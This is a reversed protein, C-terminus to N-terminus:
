LIICTASKPINTKNIRDKENCESEAKYDNLLRKSNQLEIINQSNRINGNREADEQSDDVIRNSQLPPSKIRYQSDSRNYQKTEREEVSRQELSTRSDADDGDPVNNLQVDEQETDSMDDSQRNKTQQGSSTGMSAIPHVSRKYDMNINHREFEKLRERELEAEQELETMTLGKDDAGEVDTFNVPTYEASLFSSASSRRHPNNKNGLATKPLTHSNASSSRERFDKGDLITKIRDSFVGDMCQSDSDIQKPVASMPFGHQYEESNRRSRNVEEDDESAGLEMVSAANRTTQEPTDTTADKNGVSGSKRRKGLLWYTKMEGKGKIELSGRLTTIYPAHALYDKTTQSMHIKMTDGSTEMRSACNVTDGFLCYRPMKLGVVGAVVMGSHIGIRVKMTDSSSPDRLEQMCQVMGLSMDAIHEAHYKTKTPAGSVVMYADGITEVKYVQHQETLKDFKSYMANLMSVVAMPTIMSCIHTFGVVDSFLITVDKFVECTSLAPEGRRLREAVQRPIMQYLLSDTRKMEIDLKKMSEELKASKRQEQDLALKLEVSQQTGALVLDRSSDHMALDNVFITTRFMADLNPMLPTALYIMCNWHTMYKMQGRLFLRRPRMNTEDMDSDTDPKTITKEAIAEFALLESNVDYNPRTDRTTLSSSRAGEKRPTSGTRGQHSASTYRYMKSDSQVRQKSALEFVNNTHVIFPRLTAMSSATDGHQVSHQWAPRLTAMSSATDGQQVCHRWAPRLIAMSSATDDYQVCPRWAPRQTAMSSATDGCQVCHRWAPRQTAMSSATEGYQVCHRWVPSLKAMSSATDGYQVYRRLVPCFHRWVPCLTAMSSATEGYQVCHRWVPRLTTMSSATEGYQVCNRWVPRLTTMSSAGDGYQVCHRWAPRQTAMSSATDGYQVCHRRAPRLTAMSSATDGHDDWTFSVLPRTLSFIDDMKYDVIGPLVTSLKPGAHRIILDQDFVVCFPFLEFFDDSKIHWNERTRLTSGLDSKFEKNDFYLRFVAGFTNDSKVDESVVEVQIDLNYFKRGVQKLQGISYHLFGKRKSRYILTLGNATEETVFFSPPKIMPYSFRLYEHLNDLGNLFDRMHRGLVRLVRDYGYKGVFGVFSVGFSLMLDKKEVCCVGNAANTIRPIFKESYIQHTAFTFKQLGARERIMMWKEEGYRDRLYECISEIILGYM